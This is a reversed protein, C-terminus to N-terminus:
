KATTTTIQPTACIYKVFKDLKSITPMVAMPTFWVTDRFIALPLVARPLNVRDFYQAMKILSTNKVALTLVSLM